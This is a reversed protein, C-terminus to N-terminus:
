RQSVLTLFFQPAPSVAVLGRVGEPLHSSDPFSMSFSHLMPRDAFARCARAGYKRDGVIPHGACALHVRAQHPRGTLLEVELLSYKGNSRLKRFRTLANLGAESPRAARVFNGDAEKHLPISIEGDTPADGSVVALYIKRIESARMSESMARLAPANLAIAVVGSVNRDLRGIVAPRFDNRVWNLAKWARTILSDGGARDPQSLLGAPKDVCWIDGNKFITPAEPCLAPTSRAEGSPPEHFEDRVPWPLTVADGESLRDCGKCALGNVRVSGDRVAKMISGLPVERFLGRLVRDLRRDAQDRTAKFAGKEPHRM